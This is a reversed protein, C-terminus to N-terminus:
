NLEKLKYENLKNRLTRLSIGLTKATHTRNNDMKDLTRMILEREMEKMTIGTEIRPIHNNGFSMEDGFLEKLGIEEGDALLVAREILNELERVNGRWELSSLVAMAEESVTLLSRGNAACSRKLFHDVLVPVDGPRERLTPIAIYIVNLRYYLDERFTGEKVLARLNKNTTAVVRIDVPIPRKGGIRDIEHEQLVRLLKAQLRPEMEGVEDLLITGGHAIEFKGLKKEVAGTFAGKEHGFLESELLGDPIAACNVAVFPQSRRPSCRHIYKAFLEKGTGSEGQILVTARGPAVQSALALLELLRPDKTIIGSRAGVKRGGTAPSGNSTGNAPSRKQGTVGSLAGGGPIPPLSEAALLAKQVIAELDILRFPKQLYDIAGEKMAEVANDISGFATMMVVSTQPSRRKVEKLMEVGNMRPMKVDAIVLDYPQLNFKKLGEAGNRATTVTHGSRTLAETLASRIESEDDVVLIPRSEIM